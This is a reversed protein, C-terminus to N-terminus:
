LIIRMGNSTIKNYEELSMISNIDWHYAMLTDKAAQSRRQAGYSGKKVLYDHSLFKYHLVFLDIETNYVVNGTPYSQHSGYSYRMNVEKPNFLVHKNLGSKEEGVKIIRPLYKGPEFKPFENSYMEFGMTVPITIGDKKYESRFLM